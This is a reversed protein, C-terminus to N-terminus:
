ALLALVTLLALLALVDVAELVALVGGLIHVVNGPGAGRSLVDGGVLFALLFGARLVM